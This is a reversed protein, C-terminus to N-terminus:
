RFWPRGVRRDNDRTTMAIVGPVLHDLWRDLLTAVAALIEDYIHLRECNGAVMRAAVIPGNGAQADLARDLVLNGCAHDVDSLLSSSPM